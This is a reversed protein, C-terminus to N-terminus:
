HILAAREDEVVFFTEGDEFPILMTKVSDHVGFAKCIGGIEYISKLLEQFVILGNIDMSELNSLDIIYTKIENQPKFSTCQGLDHDITMQGSINLRFVKNEIQAVFLFKLHDNQVHDKWLDEQSIEFEVDTAYIPLAKDLNLAVLLERIRKSVNVLCVRGGKETAIRRIRIVLGLGSSFVNTTRSMDLVIRYHGAISVGEVIKEEVEKSTYMTITPPLTVWVYGDKIAVDVSESM